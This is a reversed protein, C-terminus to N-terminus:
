RNHLGLAERQAAQEPTLPRFQPADRIARIQSLVDERKGGVLVSIQNASFRYKGGATRQVTLLTIIESDALRRSIRPMTIDDDTGTDTLTSTAPVPVHLATTDSIVRATQPHSSMHQRTQWWMEVSDWRDAVWGVLMSISGIALAGCVIILLVIDGTEM